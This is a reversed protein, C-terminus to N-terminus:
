LAIILSGNSQTQPLGIMVSLEGSKILSFDIQSRRQTNHDLCDILGLKKSELDVLNCDQITTRFDVIM